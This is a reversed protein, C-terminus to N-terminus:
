LLYGEIDASNLALESRDFSELWLLTVRRVHTLIEDWVNLVIMATFEPVSVRVPFMPCSLFHEWSWFCNGCHPCAQGRQPDLFFRWRLGSTIFLLFFNQCRANRTSLFSRFSTACSVEPMLRFFSFTKEESFQIFNFCVLEADTMTDSFERLHRPFSAIDSRLDVGIVLFMELLQQTWSTRHPFLHSMDFLFAERVCPLDHEIARQYFSARRKLLTFMEPLVPFLAYTLKSATHTPLDFCTCVYIKRTSEIQRATNPPLLEVGYFQSDVFAQMYCRLRSLSVIDLKRMLKAVEYASVKARSFVANQHTTLQGGASITIGVYKFSM